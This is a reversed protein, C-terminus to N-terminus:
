TVLEVPSSLSVRDHLPSQRTMVLPASSLQSQSIIYDTAINTCFGRACDHTVCCSNCQQLFCGYPRAMSLCTCVHVCVAASPALWSVLLRYVADQNNHCACTHITAHWYIAPHDSAVCASSCASVQILQEAELKTRGYANVPHCKDTERWNAKSGDYVQM